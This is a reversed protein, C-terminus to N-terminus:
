SEILVLYGSFSFYDSNTPTLTKIVRPLLELMSVAYM